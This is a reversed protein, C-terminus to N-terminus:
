PRAERIYRDHANSDLSNFRQWALGAAAVDQLAVGQTEFLIPDRGSNAVLVTGALVAHLEVAQDWDFVGVRDAEILDGCEARSGAVDDCVVASCRAVVDAGIECRDYKTSGVACILAGSAVAGGPFLPLRSQTITVIVGAGDVASAADRACIAPIGAANARAVLATRNDPNLDAVRIEV